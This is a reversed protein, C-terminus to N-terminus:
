YKQIVLDNVQRSYWGQSKLIYSQLASVNWRIDNGKANQHEYMSGLAHGVEHLVTGFDFWAVSMTPENQPVKASERGVVSYSGKAKDFKIRINAKNADDVFVFKFRDLIPNYETEVIEQIAKKIDLKGERQLGEYKVQLPSKRANAPSPVLIVEGEEPTNMFAVNQSTGLPWVRSRLFAAFDKEKETPSKHLEPYNKEVCINQVSM